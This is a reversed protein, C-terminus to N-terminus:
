RLNKHFVFIHIAQFFVAAISVVRHFVLVMPYSDLIMGVLGTAFALLVLGLLSIQKWGLKRRHVLTHVLCLLLFLVSALKHILIGTLPEMVTVIFSVLLAINLGKKM